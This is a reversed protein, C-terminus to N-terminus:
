FTVLFNELNIENSVGLRQRLRQRTKHVSDPSIGQMSAMQRTNLQLRTLAAMRQEAVTIGPAKSKLKQFFMPYTKEFLEKFSDWDQETLITLNSLVSINEQQVANADKHKMLELNEILISKEMSHRTSMEKQQEAAALETSILKKEREVVENLYKSKIRQRNVIFVSIVALLVIGLIILNRQLQKSKKDQQLMRITYMNKEENLRENSITVSSTNIKKEIADHLKQYLGSFYLASDMLGNVTYVKVAAEYINREYNEHPLLKILALAERIQQLAKARKGLDANARASWQLANAADFYYKHEMSIRYDTELLPIASDYQQRLYYVQGMNGSIIGKWERKELKAALILAKDYYFMASDYDGMRHYTLALTNTIMMKFMGYDKTERVPALRLWKLCYRKCKDYERMRFMEAALFHYSPFENTGFLKENLEASYMAYMVSLDSENYTNSLYFYVWSVYAVLYEDNIENAQQMSQKMLQMVEPKSAMDSRLVDIRYLAVARFLNLRIKFYKNSGEERAQLQLLLKKIKSSDGTNVVSDLLLRSAHNKKDEPNSLEKIWESVPKDAVQAVSSTSMLILVLLSLLFRM